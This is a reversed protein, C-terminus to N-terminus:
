NATVRRGAVAGEQTFSGDAGRRFVFVMGKQADRGPASVAVREGDVAIAAGFRDGAVIDAAPLTGAANWTTGTRRFVHVAGGPETTPAGVFAWDGSIALSWGFGSRAAPMGGLRGAHSWTGNAARTFVHVGGRS